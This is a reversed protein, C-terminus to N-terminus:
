LNDEEEENNFSAIYQQYLDNLFRIQDTADPKEEGNFIVMKVEPLGNRNERTYFPEIKEGNQTIKLGQIRKNEPNNNKPIFDFPKIHVPQGEKLNPIKYLFGRGYSSTFHIQLVAITDGNKITLQIDDGYEKHESLRANIITGEIYDYFAEYITVGKKNTRATTKIGEPKETGYNRVIKGQSVNYYASVNSTNGVM